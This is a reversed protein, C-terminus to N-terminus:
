SSWYSVSEARNNLSSLNDTTGAGSTSQSPGGKNPYDHHTLRQCGNYSSSIRNDWSASTNWWGGTCTSGMVTVSSGTGNFGDYHIGIAFSGSMSRLAGDAVLAHVSQGQKLSVTGDSAYAVADAPSRFCTPRTMVMEGDPKQDIVEIVCHKTPAGSAPLATAVMALAFVLAMGRKSM